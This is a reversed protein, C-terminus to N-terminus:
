CVQLRQEIQKSQHYYHMRLLADTEIAILEADIGSLSLTGETRISSLLADTEIATLEAGIGLLLLAFVTVITLLLADKEM